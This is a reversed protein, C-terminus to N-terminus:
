KKLMGSSRNHLGSKSESNNTEGMNEKNIKEIRGTPEFHFPLSINLYCASFAVKVCFNGLASGSTLM